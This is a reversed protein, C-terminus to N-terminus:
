QAYNPTVPKGRGGVTVKRHGPFWFEVQLQRFDIACKTLM